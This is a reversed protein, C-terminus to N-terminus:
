DGVDVAVHVKITMAMEAQKPAMTEERRNRALISLERAEGSGSLPGRGGAEKLMRSGDPKCIINLLPEAELWGFILPDAQTRSAKARTNCERWFGMLM